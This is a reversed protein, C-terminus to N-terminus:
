KKWKIENGNKRTDACVMNPLFQYYGPNIYLFNNFLIM